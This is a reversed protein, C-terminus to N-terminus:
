SQGRRVVRVVTPERSARRRARVRTRETADPEVAQNRAQSYAAFCVVMAGVVLGAIAALAVNLGTRPTTPAAPFTAGSVPLAQGPVWAARQMEAVFASAYARAGRQAKSRSSDSYLLQILPTKPISHATAHRTFTATSIGLRAAGDTTVTPQKALEEFTAGVSQDSTFLRNVAADSTSSGPAVKVIVTASSQYVPSLVFSSIAYAVLVALLSALVLVPVSHRLAQAYDPRETAEALARDDTPPAKM